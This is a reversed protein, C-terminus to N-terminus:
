RLPHGQAAMCRDYEFRAQDTGFTNVTGDADAQARFDRSGPGAARVRAGSNVSAQCVGSARLFDQRQEEEASKVQAFEPAVLSLAVVVTFVKSMPNTEEWL